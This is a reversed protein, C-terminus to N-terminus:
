SPLRKQIASDNIGCVIRDRLMGELTGEFNCLAAIAHLEAVFMSVSEGSKQVRSNFKFHQVIESPVPNFHDSLVEVLDSYSEEAPKKPSILNRLVRYTAPGIVVLLVAHKKEATTIRNAVLFHGLREEYQPWDDKEANFEKVKGVTVAM